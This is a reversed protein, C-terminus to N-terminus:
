ELKLVRYLRDKVDSPLEAAAQSRYLIITKRMTDVMVRCDPCEALHAELQACIAAELDGDIYDSLHGLLDRCQSQKHNTAVSLGGRVGSGAM